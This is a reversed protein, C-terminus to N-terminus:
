LSNEADFEMEQVYEICEWTAYLEGNYEPIEGIAPLDYDCGCSCKEM